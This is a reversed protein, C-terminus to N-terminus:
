SEAYPGRSALANPSGGNSACADYEYQINVSFISTALIPNSGFSLRIGDNPGFTVKNPITFVYEAAVDNGVPVTGYSYTGPTGNVGGPAFSWSNTSNSANAGTLGRLVPQGNVLLQVDTGSSVQGSLSQFRVYCSILRWRSRLTLRPGLLYGSSAIGTGNFQYSETAVVWNEM